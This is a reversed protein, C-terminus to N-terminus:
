RYVEEAEAVDNFDNAFGELERDSKNEVNLNYNNVTGPANRNITRQLYFDFKTPAVHAIELAKFLCKENGALAMEILKSVLPFVNLGILGQGLQQVAGAFRKDAIIKFFHREKEGGDLMGARACAGKLRKFIDSESGGTPEDYFDTVMIAAIRQQWVDVERKAGKLAAEAEADFRLGKELDGLEAGDSKILNRPSTQRQGTLPKKKSDNKNSNM